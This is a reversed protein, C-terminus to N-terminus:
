AAGDKDFTAFLEDLRIRDKLYCNYKQVTQPAIAIAHSPCARGTSAAPGHAAPRVKMCQEKSISQQGDPIISSSGGAMQMLNELAADDAPKEPHLHTLLNRLEEKDLANNGDADFKLFWSEIQEQVRAEMQQKKVQLAKARKADRGKGGGVSGGVVVMAGFWRQFAGAEVAFVPHPSKFQSATAAVLHAGFNGAGAGPDGLFLTFPGFKGPAVRRFGAFPAFFARIKGASRAPLSTGGSKGM